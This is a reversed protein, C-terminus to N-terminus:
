KVRPEMTFNFLKLPASMKVHASNLARETAYAGAPAHFNRAIVTSLHLSQSCCSFQRM